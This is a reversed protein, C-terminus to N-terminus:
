GHHRRLDREWDELAEDIEAARVMEPDDCIGVWPIHRPAGVAFTSALSLRVVESVGTGQRRAESKVLAALDNPLTITIRKMGALM